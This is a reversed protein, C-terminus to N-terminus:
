HMQIFCPEEKMSNNLEYFPSSYFKSPVNTSIDCPVGPSSVGLYSVSASTLEELRSLKDQIKDKGVLQVNVRKNSASLVYMEDVVCSPVYYYSLIECNRHINGMELLICMGLMIKNAM